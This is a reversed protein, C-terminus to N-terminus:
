SRRLRHYYIADSLLLRKLYLPIHYKQMPNSDPSHPPLFFLKAGAAGIAHRMATRKHSGLNDIVVIDGPKLAPALVQEVQALFSQGNIRDTSSGARPTWWTKDL